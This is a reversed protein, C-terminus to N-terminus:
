KNYKKSPFKIKATNVKSFAPSIKTSLKQLTRQGSKATPFVLTKTGTDASKYIYGNGPQLEVLTTGQWRGRTYTSSGTQSLIKDGNSAFGSFANTLTMSQSLPFGLYNTGNVITVPHESPDIPLGELAIECDTTVKIIYMQTVEWTLNGSWRNRAPDYTTSNNQGNIKISTGPAAAVLAAKLDNLTIDVNFSVYTTGANLAITQTVTPAFDLVIAQNSNPVGWVGLYWNNTYLTTTESTNYFKPTCSCYELGTEHDFLKFSLEEDVTTTADYYVQMQFAPYEDGLGTEDQLFSVGRCENGVFAAVEYREYNNEDVVQGDVSVYAVLGKNDSYQHYDFNPWHTTQAFMTGCLAFSVIM